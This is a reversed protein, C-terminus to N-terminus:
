ANPVAAVSYQAMAETCIAGTRFDAVTTAERSQVILISTVDLYRGGAVLRTSVYPDFSM